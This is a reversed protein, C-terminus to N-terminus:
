KSGELKEILKLSALHDKEKKDFSISLIWVEIYRGLKEVIWKRLEQVLLQPNVLDCEELCLVSAKWEVKSPKLSFTLYTLIQDREYLFVKEFALSINM